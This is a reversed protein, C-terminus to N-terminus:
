LFYINLEINKYNWKIIPKLFIKISNRIKNIIKRKEVKKRSFSTYM